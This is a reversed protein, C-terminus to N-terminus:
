PIKEKKRRGAPDSEEEADEEASEPEATKPTESSFYNHRALYCIGAFISTYAKEDDVPIVIAVTFVLFICSIILHFPLDSLFFAASLSGGVALILVDIVGLGKFFEMKVSTKKPIVRM